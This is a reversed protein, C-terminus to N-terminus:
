LIGLRSAYFSKLREIIKKCDHEDVYRWAEAYPRDDKVNEKDRELREPEKLVDLYIHKHIAHVPVHVLVDFEHEGFLKAWEQDLWIPQGPENITYKDNDTLLVHILEHTLVDVFQDPYYMFNMILPSSMARIGPAVSVDIVPQRFQVGLAETLAHMIKAEYKAWEKRYNETWEYCQDQSPIEGWDKYMRFMDRSVYDYLLPSFNIRIQPM